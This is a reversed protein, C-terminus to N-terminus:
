RRRRYIVHPFGVHEFRREETLGAKEMVRRSAVNTVMTYAIVDDLACVDFAVAIAAHAQETALGHGWRAPAIAWALEVEDTGTALTHQLGGRGVLEGTTRDRLTWLGFGYRDWHENKDAIHADIELDTPPERHPFLTKAVRPDRLLIALETADGPAIRACVMRETEVRAPSGASV